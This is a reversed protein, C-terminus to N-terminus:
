LKIEDNRKTELVQQFTKFFLFNQRLCIKLYLFGNQKSLFLNFSLNELPLKLRKLLEVWMNICSSFSNTFKSTAVFVVTLCVTLQFNWCFCKGRSFRTSIRIKRSQCLFFYIFLPILSRLAYQEKRWKRLWISVFTKSNSYFFFKSPIWLWM